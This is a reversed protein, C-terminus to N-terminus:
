ISILINDILRAAGLRLAVAVVARRSARTLPRLTEADAVEVYEISAGPIAKLIRRAAQVAKAPTQSPFKVVEAAARLARSIGRAAAREEATLYVNRSSMALGGPERVTPCPVVRVPMNLDDVMKQIVRLQQFDKQGFYAKAPQVLNFLKAVITAVGRFHGSRLAGEMPDSLKDVTIWTQFDPPYIERAEPHFLVDVGAQACMRRDAAFPRPYRSLDEKPGFQSPNVFISAVVIDNERRARRILSLHGAHLAGMTPVFGVSKGARRWALARAQMARCSRVVKM